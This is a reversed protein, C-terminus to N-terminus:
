LLKFRKLLIKQGTSMKGVPVTDLIKKAKKKEKIKLRKAEKKQEEREERERKMEAFKEDRLKTVEENTVARVKTLHTEVRTTTEREFIEVLRPEIDETENHGVSVFYGGWFPEPQETTSVVRGKKVTFSGGHHDSVEVDQILRHEYVRKTETTIQPKM